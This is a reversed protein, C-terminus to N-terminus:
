DSNSYFYDNENVEMLKIEELGIGFAIAQQQIITLVDYYAFLKGKNYDDKNENRLEDVNELFIPILDQLFYKYKIYHDKM